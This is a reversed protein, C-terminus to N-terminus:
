LIHQLALTDNFVNKNLRKPPDKAYKLPIIPPNENRYKIENIEM